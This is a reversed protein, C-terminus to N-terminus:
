CCPCCMMMFSSKSREDVDAAGATSTVIPVALAMILTRMWAPAAAPRMDRWRCCRTMNTMQLLRQHTKQLTATLYAGQRRQQFGSARGGASCGSRKTM